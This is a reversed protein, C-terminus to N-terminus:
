KKIEVGGSGPQSAGTGKTSASSTDWFSRFFDGRPSYAYSLGLMIIHKSFSFDSDPAQGGSSGAFNMWQHSLSAQLSPAVLYNLMVITGYTDFTGTNQQSTFSSHAFNVGGMATLRDSLGASANIGFLHTYIPGASAVFSPYVGLNYNFSVSYAGPAANSGPMISGAMM